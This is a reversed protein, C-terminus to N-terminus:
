GTVWCHKGDIEAVDGSSAPLCAQGVGENIQAPKHLKLM